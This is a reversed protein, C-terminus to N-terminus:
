LNDFWICEFRCDSAYKFPRPVMDCQFTRVINNDVWFSIFQSESTVANM